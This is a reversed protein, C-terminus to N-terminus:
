FNNAYENDKSSRQTTLPFTSEGKTYIEIQEAKQLDGTSQILTPLIQDM